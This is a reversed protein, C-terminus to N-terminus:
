AGRTYTSRRSQDIARASWARVTKAASMREALGTEYAHPMGCGDLEQEGTWSAALTDAGSASGCEAILQSVRPDEAVSDRRRLLVRLEDPRGARLKVM